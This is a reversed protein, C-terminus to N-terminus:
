DYEILAACNLPALRQRGGLAKLEIVFACGAVEAGLQTVLRVAAQATGGTALLDDVILVRSREAFSDQHMQLSASGYELEYSESLTSFPLKGPKRAITLGVGLRYAVPAGVIFGRSEIGVVRDIKGLWPEAIRDILAALGEADGILPTIDRFLIGPQPFDPINRVLQKLEEASLM